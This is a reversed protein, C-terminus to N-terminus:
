QMERHFVKLHIAELILNMTPKQKSSEAVYFQVTPYHGKMDCGLLRKAAEPATVNLESFVNSRTTVGDISKM